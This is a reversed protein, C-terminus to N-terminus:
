EEFTQDDGKEHVSVSLYAQLRLFPAPFKDQRKRRFGEDCSGYSPRGMRPDVRVLNKPPGPEQPPQMTVPAKAKAGANFM